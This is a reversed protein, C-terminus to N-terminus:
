ASKTRRLAGKLLNLLFAEPKKLGRAKFGKTGLKFLSGDSFSTTITPHVYYKRCVSVTNGLKSATERIAQLVFKKEERQSKCPGLGLLCCAAVVSGGWTRFDKATFEEGAISQLYRNVDTSTVDILRGQADKFAFLERGHLDDCKKIVRAIRPDTVCIDHEIGSKGKFHFKVKAGSVKVHKHRLTTLGYSGNERAYEDNGVRIHAEDMIAVITALVKEKPLGTLSLDRKIARRITPLREGFQIMKTYKTQDRLQRWGTHYLYQKRGRADRGTCQLHGNAKVCIWVNEWAPPIKLANIREVHKKDTIKKGRQDLYSFAKKGARKRTFGPDRDHVYHLGAAEASEMADQEAPSIHDHDHHSSQATSRLSM